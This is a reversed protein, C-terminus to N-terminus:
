GTTRKGVFEVKGIVKPGEIRTITLYYRGNEAAAHAGVWSGSWQGILTQPDIEPPQSWAAPALALVVLAAAISSLFATGVRSRM